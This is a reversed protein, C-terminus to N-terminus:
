PLVVSYIKAYDEGAAQGSFVLTNNDEAWCVSTVNGSFVEVVLKEAPYAILLNGAADTFALKSSNAAWALVKGGAQTTIVAPQAESNNDSLWLGPEEGAINAIVMSHDPSIAVLSDADGLWSVLIGESNQEDNPIDAEESLMQPATTAALDLSWLQYDGNELKLLYEVSNGSVQPYLADLGNHDAVVMMDLSGEVWHGFAVPPLSLQGQEGPPLPEDDPDDDRQAYTTVPPEVDTEDPIDPEDIENSEVPPTDEDPETIDPTDSTAPNDTQPDEVRGIADLQDGVQIGGHLPNQETGDGQAFWFGFGGLLVLFAAAWALAHRRFLGRRPTTQSTAAPVAVPQLAHVSAAQPLAAMVQDCFGLPAEVPQLATQLLAGLADVEAMAAACAPCLAIHQDLWEQEAASIVGDLKKQMYLDAKQCDKM